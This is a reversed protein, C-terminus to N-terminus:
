RHFPSLSSSCSSYSLSVSISSLQFIGGGENTSGTAEVDNLMSGGGADGDGRVEGSSGLVDNFMGDVDVDPRSIILVGVV